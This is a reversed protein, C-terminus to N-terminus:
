RSCISLPLPPLRAVPTVTRIPVSLSRVSVARRSTNNAAPAM